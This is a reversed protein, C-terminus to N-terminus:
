NIYTMLEIVKLKETHGTTDNTCIHENEDKTIQNFLQDQDKDKM